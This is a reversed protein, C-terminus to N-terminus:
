SHSLGVFKNQSVETYQGFVEVEDYKTFQFDTLYHSVTDM